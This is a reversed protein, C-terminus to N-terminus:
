NEKYIKTANEKYKKEFFQVLTENKILGDTVLLRHLQKTIDYNKSIINGITKIQPNLYIKDNHKKDKIFEAYTKNAWRKVVEREEAETYKNEQALRHSQPVVQTKAKVYDRRDQSLLYSDLWSCFTTVSLGFFDGYRKRVGNHFAIQIEAWDLRWYDKHIDESLMMILVEFDPKEMNRGCTQLVKVVEKKLEEVSTKLERTTKLLENM